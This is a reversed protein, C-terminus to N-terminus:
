TQTLVLLGWPFSSGELYACSSLLLSNAIWSINTKCLFLFCHRGPLEISGLSARYM